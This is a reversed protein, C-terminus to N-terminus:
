DDMTGYLPFNELSFVKVSRYSPLMEHFFCKNFQNCLPHPLGLNKRLFSEHTIIFNHLEHLKFIERQVTAIYRVEPVSNFANVIICMVVFVHAVQHKHEYDDYSM